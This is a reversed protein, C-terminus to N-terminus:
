CALHKERGSILFDGTGEGYGMDREIYLNKISAAVISKV